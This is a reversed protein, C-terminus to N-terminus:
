DEDEPFCDHSDCYYGLFDALEEECIYNCLSEFVNAIGMKNIACELKKQNWSGEEFIKFM